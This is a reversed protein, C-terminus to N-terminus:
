FVRIWVGPTWVRLGGMTRYRGEEWRHYSRRLTWHGSVWVERRLRRDYEWYGNVWIHRGSPAAGRYVQNRRGSRFDYDYYSNNNVRTWSNSRQPATYRYGNNRIVVRNNRNGGINYTAKRKDNRGRNDNHKEVKGRGRDNRDDNGRRQALVETEAFFGVSVIGIFLLVRKM